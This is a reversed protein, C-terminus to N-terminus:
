VMVDDLNGEGEVRCCIGVRLGRRKIRAGKSAEVDVFSVIFLDIGLELKSVPVGQLFAAGRSIKRVQEVASDKVGAGLVHRDLSDGRRGDALRSSETFGQCPLFPLEVGAEVGESLM